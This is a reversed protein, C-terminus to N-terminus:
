KAKLTGDLIMMVVFNDGYVANRYMPNDDAPWGAIRKDLAPNNGYREWLPVNPLLTNYVAAIAAVNAKQAKEDLGDASDVVLKQLDVEKGDVTQKMPFNMGKGVTSQVYNHVFLDQVYSYNPHPNGAGWARIAMEFKGSNVDVPHQQFQVGRVTIKFGAKNLQQAANEASASWDAYEAPVTLEFALPKGKDDVWVGDAGKKFGIGTLLSETKKTDFAYTNLKAVQDSTLWLPVLNDSIGTMYKVAKGSDGLSVTGNEDRKIAYAMAQRVEVRNLPYLDYNFYLAPGSYIPARIIRIKQDV